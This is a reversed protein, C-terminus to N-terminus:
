ERRSDSWNVAGYDLSGGVRVVRLGDVLGEGLNHSLGESEIRRHNRFRSTVENGVM